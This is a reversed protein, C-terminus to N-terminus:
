LPFQSRKYLTATVKGLGANEPDKQEVEFRMTGGDSGGTGTAADFTGCCHWALRIFLPGLSGDDHDPESRMLRALDRRLMRIKQEM